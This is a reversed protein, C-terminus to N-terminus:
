KHASPPQRVTRLYAEDRASECTWSRCALSELAELLKEAVSHEQLEAARECLALLDAALRQLDEHEETGM